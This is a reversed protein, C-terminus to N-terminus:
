RIFHNLGNKRHELFKPRFRSVLSKRPLPPISGQAHPFSEILNDRLRDFESYRITPNNTDIYM